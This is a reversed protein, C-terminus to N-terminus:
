LNEINKMKAIARDAALFRANIQRKGIKRGIAKAFEVRCDSSPDAKRLARLLRVDEGLVTPRGLPVFLDPRSSPSEARWRRIAQELQGLALNLFLETSDRDTNVERLACELKNRLNERSLAPASRSPIGLGDQDSSGGGQERLGSKNDRVSRCWMTARFSLNRGHLWPRNKRPGGVRDRTLGSCVKAPIASSNIWCIL